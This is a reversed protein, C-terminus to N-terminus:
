IPGKDKAEENGLTGFPEKELVNNQHMYIRSLLYAFYGRMNIFDEFSIKSQVKKKKKFFGGALGATPEEEEDEDEEVFRDEYRSEDKYEDDDESEESPTDPKSKWTAKRKQNPHNQPVAANNIYDIQSKNYAM